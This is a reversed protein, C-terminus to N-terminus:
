LIRWIIHYDEEGEVKKFRYKREPHADKVLKNFISKFSGIKDDKCYFKKAETQSVPMDLFERFQEARELAQQPLDIDVSVDEIIKRM